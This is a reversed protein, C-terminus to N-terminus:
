LQERALSRVLVRLKELSAATNRSVEAAPIRFVRFGSVMLEWDRQRDREFALRSSHHRYGDIEVVLRRARSLLDVVPRTNQTTVVVQNWAFDPGLEADRALAEAFAMEAPSLPHPRGIVPWLGTVCRVAPHEFTGGSAGSRTRRITEAADRAGGAMALGEGGRPWRDSEVSAEPEVSLAEYAISDLERRGRWAASVAVLVLAGTSGHVWEAARALGLLRAESIDEPPVVWAIVLRAPDLCLAIQEAEIALSYERHRPSHGARCAELTRRLWGPSVRPNDCVVRDIYLQADDTAWSGGLQAAASQYLQPYRILVSDALVQVLGELHEPLSEDPESQISVVTVPELHPALAELWGPLAQPDDAFVCRVVPPRELWGQLTALTEDMM